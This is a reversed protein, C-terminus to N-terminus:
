ICLCSVLEADGGEGGAEGVCGAGAGDVAETGGTELGNGIDRVGDGLVGDLDADCAAGLAHAHGGRRGVVVKVAM